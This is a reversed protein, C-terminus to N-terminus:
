DKGILSVGGFVLAMAILAGATFSVEKINSFENSSVIMPNIARGQFAGSKIFYLANETTIKERVDGTVAYCITKDNHKFDHIIWTGNGSHHSTGANISVAGIVEIYTM